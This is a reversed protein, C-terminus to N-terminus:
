AVVSVFLVGIMTFLGALVGLVSLTGSLGTLVITPYFRVCSYICIVTGFASFGVVGGLVIEGGELPAM